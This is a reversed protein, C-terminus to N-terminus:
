LLKAYALDKFTIHQNINGTLLEITLLENM